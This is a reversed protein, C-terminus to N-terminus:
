SEMENRQSADTQCTIPLSEYGVGAATAVTAGAQLSGRLAIPQDDLAGSRYLEDRLSAVSEMAEPYIAERYPLLRDAPNGLRFGRLAENLQAEMLRAEMPAAALSPSCLARRWFTVLGYWVFCAHFYSHLELRRGTWPSVATMQNSLAKDDVFREGSELVYLVQHITEHVLASTIEAETSTASSRLLVQGPLSYHSSSGIGKTTRAAVVVKVCRRIMQGSARAVSEAFKMVAELKKVVTALEQPTHSECAVHPSGIDLLNPSVTDVPVLQNLRPARLNVDPSWNRMRPDIFDSGENIVFFDGLATWCGEGSVAKGSLQQEAKLTHCLSAVHKAPDTHWLALRRRTAPAIAFRGAAWSPLDELATRMARGIASNMKEIENLARRLRFQCVQNDLANIMDPFSDTDGWALLGPILEILAPVGSVSPAISLKEGEQVIRYECLPHGETEASSKVWGRGYLAYQQEFRTVDDPHLLTM